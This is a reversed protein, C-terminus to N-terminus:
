SAQRRAARRRAALASAAVAVGLAGLVALIWGVVSSGSTEQQGTAAVPGVKDTLGPRAVPLTVAPNALPQGKEAAIADASQVGTPPATYPNGYAPPQGASIVQTIVRAKTGPGAVSLQLTYSRAVAYVHQVSPGNAALGDGFTWSYRLRAHRQGPVFATAGFTVPRGPMVPGVSDTAAIPLGDLRAQGLMEPQSLMWTTLMGPVALALSLAHSQTAGGDAFTNMLGVTDTPQDYPYSAAPARPGAYYSANGLITADPIGALTFPVQDSSGITDNGIVLDALQGAAFIPRWVQRGAAGHYTLQQYGLQRFVRFSGATARAMLRAFAQNRAVQAASM